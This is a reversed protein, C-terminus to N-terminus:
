RDFTRPQFFYLGNTELLHGSVLTRFVKKGEGFDDGNAMPFVPWRFTLRLEFLNTPSNNTSAPDVFPQVQSFLIYEFNITEPDRQAATSSLARIRAKNASFPTSLRGIIDRAAWGSNAVGNISLVNPEIGPAQPNGSRIANMWFQGDQNIITDIRNDRQVTMGTPMVGIIAVLAFAIIALCLAIEVLTFASQRRAPISPITNM